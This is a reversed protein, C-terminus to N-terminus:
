YFFPPFTHISLVLSVSLSLTHIHIHIFSHTHALGTLTHLVVGHRFLFFSLSLSLSADDHLLLSLFLQHTCTEHLLHLAHRHTSHSHIRLRIHLERIPQHMDSIDQPVVRMCVRMCVSTRVRISIDIYVFLSFFFILSLAEVEPLVLFSLSSSSSSPSSSFSM